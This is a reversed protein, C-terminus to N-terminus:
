EAEVKGLTTGRFNIHDHGLKVTNNLGVTYHYDGPVWPCLADAAVRINYIGNGANDFHTPMMECGGAPLNFDSIFSWGSPLTIEASGDGVDSGFN